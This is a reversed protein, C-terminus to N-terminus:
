KNLKDNVNNDSSPFVSASPSSYFLLVSLILVVFPPQIFFTFSYLTYFDNVLFM